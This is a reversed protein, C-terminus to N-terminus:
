EYHQVEARLDAFRLAEDRMQRLIKRTTAGSEIAVRVRDNGLLLDIALRDRVFEYADTRWAFSTPWLRRAAGLLDLAFALSRFRDRDTVHLFLGGCTKGAWKQFMPRFHIPRLVAGPIDGLADRLRFPDVFPAGFQLFPMTTGRGESLNTGELLCMGPYVVATELTPMNPSPSLWPLGTQDFWLERRWGTMWSVSLRCQYERNFLQALEGVTLGHRNQLPYEGVFSLFAPDVLNGETDQGNLPNPRDCVILEVGAERCVAMCFRMTYSYTYYRAGVDQIDFVLADLDSLQQVTPALDERGHGYLSVVPIRWPKAHSAAVPEMDQHTGWIGHEPGFIRVVTGGAQQLWDVAHVMQSTYSTHNIVLGLRKGAIRSADESGLRELGTRIAM